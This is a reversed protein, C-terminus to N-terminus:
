ISNSRLSIAAWSSCIRTARPIGSWVPHPHRQQIQRDPRARWRGHDPQLDRNRSRLAPPMSSCTSRTSSARLCSERKLSRASARAKPISSISTPGTSPRCTDNHFCPRKCMFMYWPKLARRDSSGPDRRNTFACCTTSTTRPPPHVGRQVKQEEAAPGHNQADHEAARDRSM